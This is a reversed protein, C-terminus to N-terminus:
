CARLLEDYVSLVRTVHQEVTPVRSAAAFAHARLEVPSRVLLREIAAACAEPDLARYTESCTPDACEAAGGEDPVVVPLGCAIGEAVALGSTEYPCGHVLLDANALASALIARDKEFGAFFVGPPARRELRAREPGDGFLVLVCTRRARVRKFADLIVDWRKEVAFRGVGVLITGRAGGTLERLRAKTGAGPHFTRSEVGFPVHVVRRVGAERLARAQAVGAVFTADFPILLARVLHRLSSLAIRATRAGFSRTLAPAVYVGLHDSHWFATRVPTARRGSAVIAATALYPSHAEIVDPREARVLPVIKDFRGLLHYTRDYPLAPGAVRVVRSRSTKTQGPARSADTLVVEDRPGPAIVTHDHGLRCLVNGRISLHSRIGGGRESYFETIDVIKLRSRRARVTSRTADRGLM